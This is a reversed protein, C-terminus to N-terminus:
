KAIIISFSITIDFLKQFKKFSKIQSFTLSGFDLLVINKYSNSKNQIDNLSNFTEIKIKNKQNGIISEKIMQIKNEELDGVKILNIGEKFEKNFFETLFLFKEQNSNIESMSLVETFESGMYRKLDKLEFIIDSKKEKLILFITGLFFGGLVSLLLYDFTTKGVPNKILTPKTILEWPVEKKARSIETSRLEDELAILTNEDRAANRVLEKYKLLVGKPRMSAELIAETELRDSLLYDIARKKLLDIALERKEILRTVVRDNETYKSRAEVLEEEITRLTNPLGDQSSLAPITAGIYQINKADKLQNIKKLQLDIKRLKNAAEVRISEIYVNQPLFTGTLRINKLDRERISPELTRVPEITVLDKDIAYEQAIRLSSGSKEKFIKIQEKLYNQTFSNAKQKRKGSYEQYSASMQRLVPLIVNKDNDTYSINLISTEKELEIDLQNKKWLSFDMQNPFIEKKDIVIEYAPMLVSPSSLIGVETKLNNAFSETSIAKLFPNMEGISSSRSDSSLVIQFQGEWIKKPFFSYIFGLLLFLFSIFSLFNKNRKLFNFIIRFDIEETKQLSQNSEDRSNVSNDM